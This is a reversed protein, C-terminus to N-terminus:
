VVSKRDEEFYARSLGEPAVILRGPRAAPEFWRLFGGALQSYGHLVLWVEGEVGIAIRKGIRRVERVVKGEAASVAPTISRLLFPSALRVKELVTGLIRKELAEIYVTIDPYEPM